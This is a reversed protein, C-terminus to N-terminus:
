ASISDLITLFSPFSTQIADLTDLSIEVNAATAGIIASMAIRHDYYTNINPKKPNLGGSLIFGDEKEIITGGCDPMVWAEITLSSNFSNSLVTSTQSGKPNSALFTSATNGDPTTDGLKTNRGQPVVVSDSVGDFLLGHSSTAIIPM